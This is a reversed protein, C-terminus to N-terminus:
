LQCMVTLPMIRRRHLGRDRICRTTATQRRLSKHNEDAVDFRRNSIQSKWDFRLRFRGEALVM